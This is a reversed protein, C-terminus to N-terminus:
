SRHGGVIGLGPALLVTPDFELNSRLGILGANNKYPARAPPKKQLERGKKQQYRSYGDATTKQRSLPAGGGGGM